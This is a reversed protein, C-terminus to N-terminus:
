TVKVRGSSGMSMSCDPQRDSARLASVLMPMDAYEKVRRFAKVAELIRAAV